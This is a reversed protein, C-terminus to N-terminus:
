GDARGADEITLQEPSINLLEGLRRVFPLGSFAQSSLRRYCRMMEEHAQRIDLSPLFYGNNGSLILAGQEREERVFHRLKRVDCGLVSCLVASTMAQREGPQLLPVVRLQAQTERQATNSDNIAPSFGRGDALKDAAGVTSLNANKIQLKM